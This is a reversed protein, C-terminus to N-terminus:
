IIYIYLLSWALLFPYLTCSIFSEQMWKKWKHPYRDRCTLSPSSICLPALYRWPIRFLNLEDCWSKFPLGFLSKLWRSIYHKLRAWVYLMSTIWPNSFFVLVLYACHPSSMESLANMECADAIKKRTIAEIKLSDYSHKWLIRTFFGLHM